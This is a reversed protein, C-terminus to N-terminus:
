NSTTKSSHPWWNRWKVIAGAIRFEEPWDEELRALEKVLFKVKAVDRDRAAWFLEDLVYDLAGEMESLEIDVSNEEM